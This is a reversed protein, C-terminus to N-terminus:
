SRVRSKWYGPRRKCHAIAIVQILDPQERYVVAYPYRRLLYRRTGHLYAAFLRPQDSIRAVAVDLEAVFADAARQSRKAYWHFAEEAEAVAEPDLEVSIRSM